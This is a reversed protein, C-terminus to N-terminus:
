NAWEKESPRAPFVQQNFTPRYVKIAESNKELDGIKVAEHIDVEMFRRLEEMNKLRSQEQLGEFITDGGQADSGTKWCGRKQRPDM